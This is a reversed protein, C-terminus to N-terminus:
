DRRGKREDAGHTADSSSQVRRRREALQDVGRGKQVSKKVRGTM